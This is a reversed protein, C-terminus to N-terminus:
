IRIDDAGQSKLSPAWAVMAPVGGPSHGIRPTPPSNATGLLKDEQRGTARCRSGRDESNPDASANHTPPHPNSLLCMNTEKKLFTVCWMIHRLPLFLRTSHRVTALGCGRCRYNEARLMRVTTHASIAVQGHAADTLKQRCKRWDVKHAAQLSHQPQAFFSEAKHSRV